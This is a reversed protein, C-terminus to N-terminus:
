ENDFHGKCALLPTTGPLGRKHLNRGMVHCHLIPYMSCTQQSFHQKDAKSTTHLSDPLQSAGGIQLHRIINTKM